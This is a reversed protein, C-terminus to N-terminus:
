LRWGDFEKSSLINKEYKCTDQVFSFSINAHGEGGYKEVSIDFGENGSLNTSVAKNRKVM